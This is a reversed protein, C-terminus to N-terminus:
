FIRHGDNYKNDIKEQQEYDIDKYLSVLKKIDQVSVGKSILADLENNLQNYKNEKAQVKEKELDDVKKICSKLTDNEKCYINISKIGYTTEYHYSAWKTRGKSLKYDITICPKWKYSITIYHGKDYNSSVNINYLELTDIGIINKVVKILGDEASNIGWRIGTYTENNDLGNEKIYDNIKKEIDKLKIDITKM